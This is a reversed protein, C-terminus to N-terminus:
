TQRDKKGGQMEIQTEKTRPDHPVTIIIIGDDKIENIAKTIFDYAIEDSCHELVEGLVIGDVKFPPEYEFYDAHVFNKVETKMDVNEHMDYDQADINICGRWDGLNSPDEKCGVNLFVSDDTFYKKCMKRQYNCHAPLLVDNEDNLMEIV